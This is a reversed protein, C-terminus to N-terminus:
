QAQWVCELGASFAGFGFSTMSNENEGPHLDVYAECFPSVFWGSQLYWGVFLFSEM